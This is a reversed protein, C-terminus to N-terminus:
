HNAEGREYVIVGEAVTLAVEFDDDLLVLDADRGVELAGKNTAGIARAANLSSLPWLEGLSRGTAAVANALAREM